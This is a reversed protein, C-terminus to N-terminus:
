SAVTPGGSNLEQTKHKSGSIMQPDNPLKNSSGPQKKMQLIHIMIAGVEHLGSNPNSSSIHAFYETSPVYCVDYFATM